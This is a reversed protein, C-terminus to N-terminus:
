ILEPIKFLDQKVYQLYQKTTKSSRHGLLKQLRKLPMGRELMHVAYNHRLDTLTIHPINTGRYAKTVIREVTSPSYRKLVERGYFFAKVPGYQKRYRQLLELLKFSVPLTRYRTRTRNYVKLESSSFNIDDLELGIIEERTLGLGYVCNLLTSHKLNSVSAIMSRIQHNTYINFDHHKREVCGFDIDVVFSERDFCHKQVFNWATVHHKLYSYSLNKALISDNLYNEFEQLEIDKLDKDFYSSIRDLSHIFLKRTNDSYKHDKLAKNLASSTM